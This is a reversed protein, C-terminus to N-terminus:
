LSLCSATIRSERCASDISSPPTIRGAPDVFSATGGTLTNTAVPSWEPHSLDTCAEVVVIPSGANTICFGLQSSCGDFVDSGITTVSSSVAYKGAKSAV